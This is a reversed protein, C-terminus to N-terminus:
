ENALYGPSGRLYENPKKCGFLKANCINIIEKSYIKNYLFLNIKISTTLIIVKKIVFLLVEKIHKQKNKIKYQIIEYGLTILIILLIFFNNIRM